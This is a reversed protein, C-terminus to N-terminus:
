CLATVPLAWPLARPVLLASGTVGTALEYEQNAHVETSLQEQAKLGLAM